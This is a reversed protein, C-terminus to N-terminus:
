KPDLGCGVWWRDCACAYLIHIYTITIYTLIYTYAHMYTHKHIYQIYAHVLVAHKTGALYVFWGPGLRGWGQGPGQSISQSLRWPHIASSRGRLGQKISNDPRAGTIIIIISNSISIRSGELIAGIHHRDWLWLLLLRRPFCPHQIKNPWWACGWWCWWRPVAPQCQGVKLFKLLM